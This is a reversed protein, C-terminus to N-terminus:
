YEDREDYKAEFEPCNEIGNWYMDDMEKRCEAFNTDREEYYYKCETCETTM